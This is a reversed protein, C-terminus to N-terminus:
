VWSSENGLRDRLAQLGRRLLGAVAAPTKEMAACIDALSAGDIHRMTIATRQAEPLLEIAEAVALAKEANVIAVSPSSDNRASVFWSLSADSENTNHLQIERRLDRKEAHHSRILNRINNRHIRRLWGLFEGVSKGRFRHFDRSAEIVTEQVIDSEGERARLPRSLSQRAMLALLPRCSELLKALQESDSRAAELTLALWQQGSTGSHPDHNM